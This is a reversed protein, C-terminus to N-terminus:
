KMKNKLSKMRYTALMHALQREYKFNLLHSKAFVKQNM